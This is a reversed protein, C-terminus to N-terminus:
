HKKFIKRILRIFCSVIINEIGELIDSLAEM